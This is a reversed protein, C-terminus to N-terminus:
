TGCEQIKQSSVKKETIIKIDNAFSCIKCKEVCSIIDSDNTYISLYYYLTTFYYLFSSGATSLKYSKQKDDLAM